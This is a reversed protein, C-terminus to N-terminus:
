VQRPGSLREVVDNPLRGSALVRDRVQDRLGLAGTGGGSTGSTGSTAGTDGPVGSDGTEEISTLCPGVGSGGTEYPTTPELCPGVGSGGTESHTTPALCPGVTGTEQTTTLCPSTGSDKDSGGPGVCSQALGLLAVLSTPLPKM